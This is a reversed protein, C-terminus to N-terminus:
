LMVPLTRCLSYLRPHLTHHLLHFKRLHLYSQQLKHPQRPILPHLLIRIQSPWASKPVAPIITLNIDTKLPSSPSISKGIDGQVPNVNTNAKFGLGVPQENEQTQQPDHQTAPDEQRERKKRMEDVSLLSASDDTSIVSPLGEIASRLPSGQLPQAFVKSISTPPQASTSLFQSSRWRPTRSSNSTRSSKSSISSM